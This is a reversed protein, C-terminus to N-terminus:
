PGVAFGIAGGTCRAPKRFAEPVVAPNQSPVKECSRLASHLALGNLFGPAPAVTWSWSQYRSGRLVDFWVVEM